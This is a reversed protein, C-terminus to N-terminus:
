QSPISNGRNQRSKLPFFIMKQNKEGEDIKYMEVMELSIRGRVQMQTGHMGFLM